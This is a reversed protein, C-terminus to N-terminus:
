RNPGARNAIGTGYPRVATRGTGVDLPKPTPLATRPRIRRM